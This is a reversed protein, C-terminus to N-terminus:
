TGFELIEVLPEENAKPQRRPPSGLAILQKKRM